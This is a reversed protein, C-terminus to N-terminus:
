KRGAQKERDQKVFNEREQAVWKLFWETEIGERARRAADLTMLLEYPSSYFVKNASFEKNGYEDNGNSDASVEMDESSKSQMPETYDLIADIIRSDTDDNEFLEQLHAVGLPILWAMQDILDKQAILPLMPDYAVDAIVDEDDMFMGKIENQVSYEGKKGKKESNLQHKLVDRETSFMVKIRQIMQEIKVDIFSAM